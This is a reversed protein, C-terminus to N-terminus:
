ELLNDRVPMGKRHEKRDVKPAADPKRRVPPLQPAGAEAADGTASTAPSLPEHEEVEIEPPSAKETTRDTIKSVQKQCALFTGASLAVVISAAAKLRRKVRRIRVLDKKAHM